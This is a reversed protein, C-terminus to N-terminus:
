RAKFYDQAMYQILKYGDISANIIASATANIGYSSLIANIAFDDLNNDRVAKNFNYNHKRGGINVKRRWCWAGWNPFVAITAIEIITRNEYKGVIPVIIVNETVSAEAIYKNTKLIIEKNTINYPTKPRNKPLQDKKWVYNGSRHLSNYTEDSLDPLLAYKNYDLILVPFTGLIESATHALTGYVAIEWEDREEEDDPMGGTSNVLIENAFKPDIEGRRLSKMFSETGEIARQQLPTM